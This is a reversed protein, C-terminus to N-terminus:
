QRFLSVENIAYHEHLKGKTDRARMVLPHIMTTHAAQLRQRLNKDHFENMLFGVTGRHMGYIPKGAKMAKRLTQLMLGDGGLAVVVDARSPSVNGYLGVLRRLASRAEPAPSAVFAIREYRPTKRLMRGQPVGPGRPLVM